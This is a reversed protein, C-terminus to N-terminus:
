SEKFKDCFKVNLNNTIFIQPVFIEYSAQNILNMELVKEITLFSAFNSISNTSKLFRQIYDEM